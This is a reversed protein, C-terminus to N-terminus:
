EVGTSAAMIKVESFEKSELEAVKLGERMVIIRDSIGMVEPLESSIVIVAVGKEAIKRIMQYIEGKAGVDVGRTPEDLILIEPNQAMWRGIVVKQQNGGSLTVAGVEIASSRLGMKEAYTASLEQDKKKNILFYKSISPLSASSMNKRVQLNLFLGQKKRDEPVLGIGQSIADKPTKPQYDRNKFKIEGSSKKTFGFIALAVESRGSGILGSFGLIEGPYLNFSIEKVSKNLSLKEVTLIPETMYDVSQKRTGYLNILERGVMLKVIDQQNVEKINKVDVLKADRFVTVRDAIEFIERLRHSVYIITVGEKKLNKTLEFLTEVENQTLSSTPEDMVLVKAKSVLAKAIEVMQRNAINLTGVKTQPDFKLSLRDLYETSDEYLKKFNITGIKNKPLRGVFLNEAVSLDNALNLEQYIVSIGRDIADQTKTFHVLEGNLHITGEDANVAGALIKLLTSKGAGNEGVLAMIEGQVVSFNIHDLAIVGPYKKVIGTMSIIENMRLEM